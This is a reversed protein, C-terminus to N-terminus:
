ADEYQSTFDFDTIPINVGPENTLCVVYFEGSNIFATGAGDSKWQTPLPMKFRKNFHISKGVPTNTAGGTVGLTVTRDMMVQFRRGKGCNNRNISRTWNTPNGIAAGYLVDDIAPIAGNVAKDRVIIVRITQALALSLVNQMAWLRFHFTKVRVKNGLRDQDTSGQAVAAYTTLYQPDTTTGFGPVHRTIFKDEIAQDLKKAVYKVVAKSVKGGKRNRPM